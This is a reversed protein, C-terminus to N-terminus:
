DIYGYSAATATENTGNNSYQINGTNIVIAQQLAEIGTDCNRIRVYGASSSNDTTM